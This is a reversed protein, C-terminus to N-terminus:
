DKGAISSGSINCKVGLLAVSKLPLHYYIVPWINHESTSPATRSLQSSTACLIISKEVRIIYENHYVFTVYFCM